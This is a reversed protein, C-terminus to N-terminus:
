LFAHQPEPESFGAVEGSNNISQGISGPTGPLTGLDTIKYLTSAQAVAACVAIAFSIPSM